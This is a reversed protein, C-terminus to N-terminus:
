AGEHTGETKAETRRATRSRQVRLFGELHKISEENEECAFKGDGATQYFEMRKKVAEVVDEVFAGNPEVREETGVRGLPGNQYSITFGRGTAVGGAPNGNEDVWNEQFHGQSAM